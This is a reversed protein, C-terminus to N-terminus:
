SACAHDEAVTQFNRELRVVRTAHSGRKTVIRSTLMSCAPAMEYIPKHMTGPLKHSASTKVLIALEPEVQLLQKDLIVSRSICGGSHVHLTRVTRPYSVADVGRGFRRHVGPYVQLDGASVNRTQGAFSHCIGCSRIITCATEECTKRHTVQPRILHLTCCYTYM